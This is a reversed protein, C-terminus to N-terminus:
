RQAGHQELCPKELAYSASERTVECVSSSPVQGHTIGVGKHTGFGVAMVCRVAIIARGMVRVVGSRVTDEVPGASPLVSRMGMDDVAMVAIALPKEVGTATPVLM